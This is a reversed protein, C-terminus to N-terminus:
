AGLRIGRTWRVDGTSRSFPVRAQMGFGSILTTTMYHMGPVVNAEVTKAADILKADWSDDSHATWWDVTLGGPM